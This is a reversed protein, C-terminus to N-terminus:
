RRAKMRYSILGDEWKRGVENKDELFKLHALTEGLALWKHVPPMERWSPFDVDWSIKPAIQYATLGERELSSKIEGLREEHHKLLQDVRGPHEKFPHGHGPLVVDVNLRKVKKLSEMYDSLPNTGKQWKIVSPTTDKLLHDGSILLKLQPEYLCTHGPSHGPTRIARFTYDSVELENGDELPTISEMVEGYKSFIASGPHLQVMTETLEKPVGNSRAMESLGGEFSSPDEALERLLESEESSLMFNPAGAAKMKPLLGIHDIHFHTIAVNTAGLEVGAKRLAESSEHFADDIPPGADILLNGEEGKVLYSNLHNLEGLQLTPIRIRFINPFIEELM